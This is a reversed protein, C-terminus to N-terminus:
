TRCFTLSLDKSIMKALKEGVAFVKGAETAAITVQFFSSIQVIRDKKEYFPIEVGKM